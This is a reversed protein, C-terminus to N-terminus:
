HLVVLCHTDCDPQGFPDCLPTKVCTKGQPCAGTACDNRKVCGRADCRRGHTAKPPPTPDPPPAPSACAGVTALALACALAAAKM